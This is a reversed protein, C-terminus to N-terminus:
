IGRGITSGAFTCAAAVDPSAPPIASTICCTATNLALWNVWTVIKPKPIMGYM